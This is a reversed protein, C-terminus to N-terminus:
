KPASQTVPQLGLVPTLPKKSELPAHVYADLKEFSSNSLAAKLRQIYDLVIRNHQDDLDKLKQTVAASIKGSEVSQLRSEFILPRAAEQLSAIKAACDTAASSLIEVEIDNLGIVEHIRSKMVQLGANPSEQVQDNPTMSHSSESSWKLELVQRFFPEYVAPDSLDKPSRLDAPTDSWLWQVFRWHFVGPGASNGSDGYIGGKRLITRNATPTL